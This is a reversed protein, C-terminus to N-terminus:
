AAGPRERAWAVIPKSGQVVSGDDTVLVPVDEQGTLEVIRDRKGRRSGPLNKFGGVVEVEYEHGGEDLAKAAVGCAHKVLPFSAGHTRGGCTYLIM